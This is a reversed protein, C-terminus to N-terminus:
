NEEEAFEITMILDAGFFTTQKARGGVRKGGNQLKIASPCFGLWNNEKTPVPLPAGDNDADDGYIETQRDNATDCKAVVRTM